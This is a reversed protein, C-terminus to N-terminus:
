SRYRTSPPKLGSSGSRAAADGRPRGSRRTATLLEAHSRAVRLDYGLVPLTALIEDVFRQRQARHAEDALAWSLATEFATRAGDVDGAARLADGLTTACSRAGVAYGIREAQALGEQATAVVAEVAALGHELRLAALRALTLSLGSGHQVSRYREVATELARVADAPRDLMALVMAVNGRAQAAGVADGLDDRLRVATEFRDRAPGLRGDNGAVVGATNWAMALGDTAVDDPGAEARLLAIAEHVATEAEDYRGQKALFLAVCERVWGRLGLNTSEHLARDARSFQELAERVRGRVDAWGRLLRALPWLADTDVDALAADWAFRLNPHEADVRRYGEESKRGHPMADIDSAVAMYTRAVARRAADPDRLDSAFREAIAAHVALRRGERQLLARETLALLLFTSAGSAARAQSPEFGGPILALTGLAEQEREDMLARTLDITRAARDHLGPAHALLGPRRRLDDALEGPSLAGSWAAALEVSLPRTGTANLLTALAADSARAGTAATRYLVAAADDSLDPVELVVEQPLHLPRRATAVIRLDPAARLLETLVGAGDAVGDIEDLVWRVRREGLRTALEAPDDTPELETAEALTRILDAPDTRGRLDIWDSGDPADAATERAVQAALRSKGVGGPGTLVVLRARVLTPLTRQLWDTRGVLPRGWTPLRVRPRAPGDAVRRACRALSEADGGVGEPSRTLTGDELAAMVTARLLAPLGGTAAV